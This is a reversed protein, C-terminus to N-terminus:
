EFQKSFEDFCKRSCFNNVMITSVGLLEKINTDKAPTYLSDCNICRINKDIYYSVFRTPDIINQNNSNM